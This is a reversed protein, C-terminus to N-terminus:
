QIYYTVPILYLIYLIVWEVSILSIIVMSHIYIKLYNFVIFCLIVSFRNEVLMQINKMCKTYKTNIVSM